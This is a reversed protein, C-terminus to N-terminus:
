PAEKLETEIATLLAIVAALQDQGQPTEGAALSQAALEAGAQAQHLRGSIRAAQDTSIAGMEFRQTTTEAIAAISVYVGGLAEAPTQPQFLTCGNIILLCIVWQLALARRIHRM